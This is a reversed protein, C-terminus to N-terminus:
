ADAFHSRAVVATVRDRVLDVDPEGLTSEVLELLREGIHRYVVELNQILDRHATAVVEDATEGLVFDELVHDRKGLAAAGVVFDRLPENSSPGTSRIKSWWESMTTDLIARADDIIVGPSGGFRDSHHLVGVDSLNRRVDSEVIARVSYSVSREFAELGFARHGRLWRKKSRRSGDHPFGALAPGHAETLDLAGANSAFQDRILRKEQEIWNSDELVSGVLEDIQHLTKALVRDITEQGHRERELALAVLDRALERVALSPVSHSGARLHHEPVRLIETNLGETGLRSSFDVAAGSSGSSYRNLVNIVPTGRAVARRLVEWPVMDAYRLASTVFVVVDANDIVIEAMVRHETSTSDIDPTDILVMDDLIPARGLRVECEVGSVRQYDNARDASALVIPGKTTPRIPGTISLDRGALSNVLTSKGSGTPGAFVVCLPTHPNSLRVSLYSRLTRVLRDREALSSKGRIEAVRLDLSELAHALHDLDDILGPSSRVAVM